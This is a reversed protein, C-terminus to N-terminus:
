GDFMDLIETSCAVKSALLNFTQSRLSIETPSRLFVVIHQARLQGCAPGSKTSYVGGGRMNVSAECAMECLSLGSGRCRAVVNKWWQLRLLLDM